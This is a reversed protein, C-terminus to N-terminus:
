TDKKFTRYQKYYQLATILEDVDQDFLSLWVANEYGQPHDDLTRGIGAVSINIFKAETVGLAFDRSEYTDTSRDLSKV